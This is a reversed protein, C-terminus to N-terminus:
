PVLLERPKKQLSQAEMPVANQFTSPDIGNNIVSVRTPFGAAAVEKAIEDSVAVVHNHAPARAPSIAYM